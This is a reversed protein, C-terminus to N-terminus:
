KSPDFGRAIWQIPYLGVTVLVLLIVMPLLGYLAWTPWVRKINHAVFNGAARWPHSSILSTEFIHRCETPCLVGCIRDTGSGFLRPVESCETSEMKCKVVCAAQVSYPSVGKESESWFIPELDRAAYVSRYTEYTIAHEWYGWVTVLPVWVCCAALWARFLGRRLNLTLKM